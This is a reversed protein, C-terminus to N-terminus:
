RTARLNGREAETRFMSPCMAGLQLRVHQMRPMIRRIATCAHSSSGWHCDHGKTDLELSPCSFPLANILETLTSRPNAFISDPELLLSFSVLKDMTDFLCAINEFQEYILRLARPISGYRDFDEDGWEVRPEPARYDNREFEDDSNYQSRFDESILPRKDFVFSEDGVRLSLSRIFHGNFSGDLPEVFAEFDARALFINRYLQLASTIGRRLYKFSRFWIMMSLATLAKTAIM